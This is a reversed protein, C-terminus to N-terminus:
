VPHPRIPLPPAGTRGKGSRTEVLDPRAQGDARVHEPLQDRIVAGGRRGLGALPRREGDRCRASHMAAGRFPDDTPPRM